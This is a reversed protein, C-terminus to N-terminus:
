AGEIEVIIRVAYSRPKPSKEQEVWWTVRPDRDDLGLFDAIGDRVSKGAAVLNDTDLSRPAIRVIKVTAVASPTRGLSGAMGRPSAARLALDSCARQQKARKARKAWHTRENLTSELKIPLTVDVRMVDRAPSRHRGLSTQRAVFVRNALQPSRKLKVACSKCDAVNPNVTTKTTAGGGSRTEWRM